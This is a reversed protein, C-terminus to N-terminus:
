LKGRYARRNKGLAATQFAIFRSQLASAANNGADFLPKIRESIYDLAYNGPTLLGKENSEMVFTGGTHIILIKKQAM